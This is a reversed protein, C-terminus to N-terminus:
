LSQLFLNQETRELNLKFHYINGNHIDGVFIDNEFGTGYNDSDLFKIATPGITYLWTLKPPHYKGIGNLEVLTEPQASAITSEGERPDGGGREWIGM